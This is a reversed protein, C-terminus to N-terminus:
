KVTKKLFEEIQRDCFCLLKSIYENYDQGREAIIKSIKSFYLDRIRKEQVVFKDLLERTLFEARKTVNIGEVEAILAICEKKLEGFKESINDNIDKETWSGM